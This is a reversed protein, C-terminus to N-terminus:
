IEKSYKKAAVETQFHLTSKIESADGRNKLNHALTNRLIQPTIKLPPKLSKAYKNLIREISRISLAKDSAKQSRDFSIFLYPNNDKRKNIYKKLYPWCLLSISLSKKNTVFKKEEWIISDIKIKSIENVKLGSNYLIELLVKDRLGLISINKLPADLLKELEIKTLYKLNTKSTELLSFKFEHKIFRLYANLVILQLNISNTKDYKNLLYDLYENLTTNNIQRDSLWIFFKDLHWLYNKLSSKKFNKSELYTKYKELEALM